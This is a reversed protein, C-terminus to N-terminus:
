LVVYGVAENDIAAYIVTAGQRCYQEASEFDVHETNVNDKLADYKGVFVRKGDVIASVGKGISIKFEEVPLLNDSYSNIIAKGLPHESNAEASAVYKYLEDDSYKKNCSKVATVKLKGYTLTGTKDFTVTTVASLRELADGQRVLFGHKTANGIAAM